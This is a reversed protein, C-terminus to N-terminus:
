QEAGTRLPKLSQLVESLVVGADFAIGLRLIKIGDVVEASRWVIKGSFQMQMAPNDSLIEGRVTAHMAFVEGPTKDVIHIRLGGRSVDEILADVIQPEALQASCDTLLSVRARQHRRKENTSTEAM